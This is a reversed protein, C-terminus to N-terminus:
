VVGVMTYVSVDSGGGRIARIQQETAIALVEGSEIFFTSTTAAAGFNIHIGTTATSPVKIIVTRGTGTGAAVLEASAVGVTAVSGSTWTLPESSVQGVSIGAANLRYAQFESGGAAM